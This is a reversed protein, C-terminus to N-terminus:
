CFWNGQQRSGLAHFAMASGCDRANKMGGRSQLGYIAAYRSFASTPVPASLDGITQVVMSDSLALMFWTAVTVLQCEFSDQLQIHCGSPTVVGRMSDTQHVHQAAISTMQLSSQMNDSAALTIILATGLRHSEFLVQTRNDAVQAACAGLDYPTGEEMALNYRGQLIDAAKDLAAWSSNRLCSAEYGKGNLYSRDGCRFHMGIQYLPAGSSTNDLARTRRRLPASSSLNGLLRHYTADVEKWLLDTPWMAMRLMCGAAEYLDGTAGGLTRQLDRHSALEAHMQDRCLYCRNSRYLIVPQSVDGSDMSCHASGTGVNNICNWLDYETEDHDAWSPNYATWSTWNEYSLRGRVEKSPHFPTFLRGIQTRSRLLLTRNFRLAFNM